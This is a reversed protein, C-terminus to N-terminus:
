KLTNKVIEVFRNLTENDEQWNYKKHLDNLLLLTMESNTASNFLQISAEYDSMSGKFLESIFEFKDNIGISTKIDRKPTAKAEPALVQEKVIQEVAPPANNIANEVVKPEPLSVEKKVETPPPQTNIVQQVPQSAPPMEQVIIKEVVSAAVVVPKEVPKVIPIQATKTEIIPIQTNVFDFVVAKKHLQEVSHVLMATQQQSCHTTNEIVAFQENITKVLAAIDKKIISTDM